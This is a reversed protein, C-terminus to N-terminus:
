GLSLVSCFKIRKRADADNWSRTWTTGAKLNAYSLGQKNQGEIVADSLKYGRPHILFCRRSYLREEGMGNGSNAERSIETAIGPNGSNVSFVNNGFIYSYYAYRPTGVGNNLDIIPMSDDVLVRMNGYTAFLTNNDADRVMDILQAKRMNAYVQGHVVLINLEDQRDGLKASAEILSDADLFTTEGTGTAGTIDLILDSDHNTVSDAVIGTAAFTVRKNIDNQWYKDIMSNIAGMPDGSTVLQTLDMVSYSKNVYSKGALEIGSTIKEHTVKDDPDDNGINPEDNSIPNFYPITFYWGM